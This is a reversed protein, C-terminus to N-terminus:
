CGRTQLCAFHFIWFVNEARVISVSISFALTSFPNEEVVFIHWGPFCAKSPCQLVSTIDFLFPLITSLGIFTLPFSVCWYSLRIPFIYARTNGRHEEWKDPFSCTTLFRVPRPFSSTSKQNLSLGQKSFITKNQCSHGVKVCEYKLQSICVWVWMRVGVRGCMSYRMLSSSFLPMQFLWGRPPMSMIQPPESRKGYSQDLLERSPSKRTREVTAVSPQVALQHFVYASRRIPASSHVTGYHLSAHSVLHHKFLQVYINLELKLTEEPTPPHPELERPSLWLQTSLHGCRLHSPRTQPKNGLVYQLSLNNNRLSSLFFSFVNWRVTKPCPKLAGMHWVRFLAVRAGGSM